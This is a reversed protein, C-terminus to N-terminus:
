FQISQRFDDIPIGLGKCLGRLESLRFSEPDRIREYYTSLGIGAMKALEDSSKRKLTANGSILVVLKDGRKPRTKLKPM